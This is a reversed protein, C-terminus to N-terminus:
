QPPISEGLDNRSVDMIPSSTEVPSSFSPLSMDSRDLLRTAGSGRQQLLLRTNDECLQRNQLRLEANYEAQEKNDRIDRRIDDLATIIGSEM